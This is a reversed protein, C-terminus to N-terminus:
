ALLAGAKNAVARVVKGSPSLEMFEGTRKGGDDEFYVLVSSVGSLADLLRFALGPRMELGRSFYRRLAEIGSVTCSPADLIKAVLPSVLVVDPAYFALIADLDHANWAQIWRRAFQQAEDETM